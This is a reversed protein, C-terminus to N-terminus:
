LARAKRLLPLPSCDAPRWRVSQSADNKVWPPRQEVMRKSPARSRMKDSLAPGDNDQDQKLMPNGAAQLVLVGDRAGDRSLAPCLPVARAWSLWCPMLPATGPWLRHRFALRCHTLIAHCHRVDFVIELLPENEMRLYWVGADTRIVDGGEEQGFKELRRQNAETVRKDVRFMTRQYHQPLPPQAREFRDAPQNLVRMLLRGTHSTLLQKLTGDWVPMVPSRMCLQLPQLLFADATVAVIILSVCLLPGWFDDFGAPLWQNSQTTAHGWRCPARATGSNAM